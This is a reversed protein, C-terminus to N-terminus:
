ILRIIVGANCWNDTLNRILNLDSCFLGTLIIKVNGQSEWFFTVKDM